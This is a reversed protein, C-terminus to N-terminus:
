SERRGSVLRQVAAASLESKAVFGAAPTDAILDAYDAEAHTSILIVPLAGDAESLRRALDLGSESGLTIDLLAVDPRLEQVARLADASNSAVGAVVLGQRKLLASAAELFSVNDDVILCRLV